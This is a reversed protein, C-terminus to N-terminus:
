ALNTIFTFLSVQLLLPLSFPLKSFWIAMISPAGDYVYRSQADDDSLLAIRFAFIAQRSSYFAVFPIPRRLSPLHSILRM